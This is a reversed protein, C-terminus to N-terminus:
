TSLSNSLSNLRYPPTRIQLFRVYVSVTGMNVDLQTNKERLTFYYSKFMWTSTLPERREHIEPLEDSFFYKRLFKRSKWNRFYNLHFNFKIFFKTIKRM